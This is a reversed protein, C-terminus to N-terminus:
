LDGRRKVFYLEYLLLAIVAFLLWKAISQEVFQTSTEIKREIAALDGGEGKGLQSEKDNIMNVAIKKEGITYIGVEDLLLATSTITGSPTTVDQASPFNLITGTRQNYEDLNQTGTLFGTLKSWFLPYSPSFKFDSYEDLIGYYATKGLGEDKITLLPNDDKTKLLTLSNQVAQGTHYGNVDAFEVDKTIQNYSSVIAKSSTDVKEGLNVPLLNTSPLNDQGAFIVVAGNQVKRRIDDLTGTLLADNDFRYFIFIDEDGINVIPPNAVSIDVGSAQLAAKIFQTEEEQNTILLAKKRLAEPTSIYAVNDTALSDKTLIEVKTVGEPTQIIVPEISSGDLQLQKDLDGIKVDLTVPTEKYNKFHITTKSKTVRLDTIAYNDLTEGVPVFEVTNASASAISRAAFPDPGENVLFDSVVIVNGNSILEGALAIADGLNTATAKPRLSDLIDRAQSRSGGELVLLPTNAALIVTNQSSLKDKATAIIEDFYAGTSGSIDVVLAVEEATTEEPVLIQPDAAAISLLVLLILQILFLWDKIFHKLFSSQLFAGKEKMLFMVSPIKLDQPKPRILYLIVFPILSLLAYLGLPNGFLAM